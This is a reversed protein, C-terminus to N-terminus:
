GNQDRVWCKEARRYQQDQFSPREICSCHTFIIGPKKQKASYKSAERCVSFVTRASASAHNGYSFTLFSIVTSSILFTKAKQEKYQLIFINFSTEM